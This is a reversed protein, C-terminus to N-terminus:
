ARDDKLKGQRHSARQQLPDPSTLRANIPVLALAGVLRLQYVAPM